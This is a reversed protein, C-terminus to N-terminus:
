RGRRTVHTLMKPWVQGSTLLNVLKRESNKMREAFSRNECPPNGATGDCLRTVTSCRNMNETMMPACKGRIRVGLKDAENSRDSQGSLAAVPPTGGKAAPTIRSACCTAHDCWRSPLSGLACSRLATTAKAIGTADSTTTRGARCLAAPCSNAGTSRELMGPDTLVSESTMQSFLYSAAITEMGARAFLPLASRPLM